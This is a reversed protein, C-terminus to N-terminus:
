HGDACAKGGRISQLEALWLTMVPQVVVQDGAYLGDTIEVHENNAIGAKVPTRVFDEGSATYVFEGEATRLLAARPISVVEKDAAVQAIVTVFSGARLQGQPDEIAITVDVHAGSNEAHTAIETVRGGLRGGTDPQVHVEQDRRLVRADEANIDASALTRTPPAKAGLAVPRPIEPDRYVQASFRFETPIRREEVDVTQLGIFKATKEPVHLGRAINFTVGAEVVERQHDEVTKDSCGALTIMLSAILVHEIHIKM